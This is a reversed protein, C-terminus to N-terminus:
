DPFDKVGSQSTKDLGREEVELSFGVSLLCFHASFHEKRAGHVKTARRWGIFMVYQQM